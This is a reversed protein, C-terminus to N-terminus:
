PALLAYGDTGEVEFGVPGGDGLSEITEFAFESQGALLAFCDELQNVSVAGGAGAAVNADRHLFEQALQGGAALNAGADESFVPRFRVFFGPLKQM